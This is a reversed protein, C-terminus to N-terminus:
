AYAKKLKELAEKAEELEKELETVDVGAAKAKEIEEEAIKVAKEAEAIEAELEPNAM